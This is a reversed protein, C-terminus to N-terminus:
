KSELKGQDAPPNAAAPPASAGQHPQQAKAELEKVHLQAGQVAKMALEVLLALADAEPGQMGKAAAQKIAQISVALAQLAEASYSEAAKFSAAKQTAHASALARGAFSASRDMLTRMQKSIV